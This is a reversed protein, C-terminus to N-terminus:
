KYNLIFVCFSVCKQDQQRRTIQRIPKGIMTELIFRDMECLEAHDNLLTAYPCNRFIVRPGMLHAEWSAQYHHDNLEKITLKLTQSLNATEVSKFMLRALERMKLHLNNDPTRQLLFHELLCNTLHHVDSPYSLSALHYYLTPRGRIKEETKKSDDTEILGEVSLRKLHYQINEKTMSLANSIEEASSSTHKTLFDIIRQRTQKTM